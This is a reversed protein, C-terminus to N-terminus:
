EGVRRDVFALPEGVPQQGTGFIATVMAVHEVDHEHAPGLPLAFDGFAALATPVLIEVGCEIAITGPILNAALDHEGPGIRLLLTARGPKQVFTLITKLLNGFRHRRRDEAHLYLARLAVIMRKRRRDLLTVIPAEDRKEIAALVY